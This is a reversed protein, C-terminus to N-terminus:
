LAMLKVKTGAIVFIESLNDRACVAFKKTM